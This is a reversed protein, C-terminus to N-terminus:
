KTALKLMGFDQNPHFSFNTKLTFLISPIVLQMLTHMTYLLRVCQGGVQQNCFKFALMIIITVLFVSHVEITAIMSCQSRLWWRQWSCHSNYRQIFITSINEAPIGTFSCGVDHWPLRHVISRNVYDDMPLNLNTRPGGLFTNGYDKGPWLCYMTNNLYSISKNEGICPQNDTLNHRHTDWRGFALDIGGVFAISRDVVVIKEHHSWRKLINIGPHFLISINKHQTLFEPVYRNGTDIVFSRLLKNFSRLWDNKLFNPIWNAFYDLLVLAPENYLLIYVNVGKDAKRLLMQDLRWQLETERVGADSRKMFIHPNMQWDAILIESSATEIADAVASM